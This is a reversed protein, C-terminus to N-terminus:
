DCREYMMVPVVDSEGSLYKRIKEREQKLTQELSPKLIGDNYTDYVAGTTTDFLSLSAFGMGMRDNYRFELNCFFMLGGMHTGVSVHATCNELNEVKAVRAKVNEPIKGIDGGNFIM